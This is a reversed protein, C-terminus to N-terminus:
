EIEISFILIVVYRSYLYFVVHKPTDAPTAVKKKRFCFCMIAGLIACGLIGTGTFIIILTNFVDDGSDNEKEQTHQLITRTETLIVTALILLCCKFFLGGFFFFVSM